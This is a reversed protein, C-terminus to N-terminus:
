VDKAEEKILYDDYIAVISDRAANIDREPFKIYFIINRNYSDTFDRAKKVWEDSNTDEYHADGLITRGRALLTQMQITLKRINKAKPSIHAALPVALLATLWVMIHWTLDIYQKLVPWPDAWSLLGAAAAGPAFIAIFIQVMDSAREVGRLRSVTLVSEIELQCLIRIFYEWSTKTEM